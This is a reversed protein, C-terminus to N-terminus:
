VGCPDMTFNRGNRVLSATCLKSGYVTIKLVVQFRLLFLIIFLSSHCFYNPLVQNLDDAVFFSATYEVLGMPMRQTPFRSDSGDERMTSIGKALNYLINSRHKEALRLMASSAFM